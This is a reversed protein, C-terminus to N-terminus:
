KKTNQDTMRLRGGRKVNAKTTRKMPQSIRGRDEEGSGWSRGAKIKGKKRGGDNETLDGGKVEM